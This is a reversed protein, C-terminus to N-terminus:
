LTDTHIIRTMCLLGPHEPHGQLIAYTGLRYRVVLAPINNPQLTTTGLIQLAGELISPAPFCFETPGFLEEIGRPIYTEIQGPAPHITYDPPEIM